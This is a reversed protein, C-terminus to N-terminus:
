TEVRFTELLSAQAVLSRNDADLKDSSPLTPSDQLGKGLRIILRIGSHRSIEASAM